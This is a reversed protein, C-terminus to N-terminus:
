VQGLVVTISAIDKKEYCITTKKKLDSLCSLRRNM